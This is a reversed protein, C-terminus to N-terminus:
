ALSSRQSTLSQDTAVSKRRIDGWPNYYNNFHSVALAIHSAGTETYGVRNGVLYNIGHGFSVYEFQREPPGIKRLSDKWCEADSDIAPHLGGWLTDGALLVRKGDPMTLDYCVSGPTHGPTHIVQIMINGVKMHFDGPLSRASTIDPFEQDEYLFTATRLKNRETVALLDAPHVLLQADSAKEIQEMASIHDWHCHTALVLSVDGAQLGINGLQAVFQPYGESSGCDILINTNTDPDTILYSNSDWPHTIQDGGVQYLNPLLQM